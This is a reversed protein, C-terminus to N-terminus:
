ANKSSSFLQFSLHYCQNKADNRYAYPLAIKKKTNSIKKLNHPMLATVINHMKFKLIKQTFNESRV